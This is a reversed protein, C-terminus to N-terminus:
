GSGFEFRTTIETDERFSHKVPCTGAAKELSTREAAEFDRPVHITVDIKTFRAQPKGGMVLDVDARAGEVDLHHRSAFANMSILMCAGLGAAVLSDPGFEEGKEMPCDVAVRRGNKTSLATYRGKGDYTVEVQSV